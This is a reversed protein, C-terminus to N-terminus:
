LISGGRLLGNSRLLRRAVEEGRRAEQEFSLGRYAQLHSRGKFRGALYESGYEWLFRLFGRERYQRVHVLEHALLVLGEDSRRDVERWGSSSFLVASGLTLASARCVRAALRAAPGRFLLMGDRPMALVASVLGVWDAIEGGTREPRVVNMLRM